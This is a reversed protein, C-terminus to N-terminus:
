RWSDLLIKILFEIDIENCDLSYKDYNKKMQKYTKDDSLMIKLLMTYPIIIKFIYNNIDDDNNISSSDILNVLMSFKDCKGRTLDKIAKINIVITRLFVVYPTVIAYIHNNIFDDKSIRHIKFNTALM